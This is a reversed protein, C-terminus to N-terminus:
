RLHQSQFALHHSPRCSPQGPRPRAWALLAELISRVDDTQQSCIEYLEQTSVEDYFHVTHNRYGALQALRAGQEADIM